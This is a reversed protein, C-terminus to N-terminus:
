SQSFSGQIKQLKLILESATGVSINAINNNSQLEHLKHLDYHPKADEQLLFIAANETIARNNIQALLNEMSFEAAAVNFVIVSPELEKICTGLSAWSSCIHVNFKKSSLDAALRNAAETPESFFIINTTKFNYAPSNETIQKLAPAPNRYPLIQNLCLRKAKYKATSGTPAGFLCLPIDSFLSASVLRGLAILNFHQLVSADIVVAKFCQDAIAELASEVDIYNQIILQTPAITCAFAKFREDDTGLYLITDKRHIWELVKGRSLRAYRKLNNLCVDVNPSSAFPGDTALKYMCDFLEHLYSLELAAATARQRDLEELFYKAITENPQGNDNNIAIWLLKLQYALVGLENEYEDRVTELLEQLQAQSPRIQDPEESIKHNNNINQGIESSKPKILRKNTYANDNNELLQLICVSLAEENGCWCICARVDIGGKILNEVSPRAGEKHLLVVPQNKSSDQLMELLESNCLGDFYVLLLDPHYKKLSHQAKSLTNSQFIDVGLALLKSCISMRM